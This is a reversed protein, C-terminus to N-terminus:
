TDNRSIVISKGDAIEDDLDLEIVLWRKNLASPVKDLSRVLKVSKREPIRVADLDSENKLYEDLKSLWEKLKVQSIGNLKERIDKKPAGALHMLAAAFQQSADRRTGKLETFFYSSCNKCHYRQRGSMIGSRIILGSGCKPCEIREIISSPRAM